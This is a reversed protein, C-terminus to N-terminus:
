QSIVEPHVTILGPFTDALFEVFPLVDDFMMRASEETRPNTFWLAINEAGDFSVHITDTDFWSNVM